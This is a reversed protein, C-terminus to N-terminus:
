RPRQLWAVLRVADLAGAVRDVEAGGKFLLLSPISRIGFRQALAAEAETDVKAFRVRASLQVAVQEFVPAMMRCPGCWAAWFDVVVPLDNRGVFTDFSAATLSVPRPDLVASGCRGCKPHQALRDDPVRNVSFCDPCVVHM